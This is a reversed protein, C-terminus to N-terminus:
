GPAAPFIGPITLALEVDARRGLTVLVNRIM